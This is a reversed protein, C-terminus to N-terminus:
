NWFVSAWNQNFLPFGDSIKIFLNTLRPFISTDIKLPSIVRYEINSEITYGWLNKISDMLGYISQVTSRLLTPDTGASPDIIFYAKLPFIKAQVFYDVLLPKSAEIWRIRSIGVLSILHAVSSLVNIKSQSSFCALAATSITQMLYLTQLLRQSLPNVWDVSIGNPLKTTVIDKLILPSRLFMNLQTVALYSLAGGALATITAGVRFKVTDKAKLKKKVQEYLFYSTRTLAFIDILVMCTQVKHITAALAPYKQLYSLTVKILSYVMFFREFTTQSPEPDLPRNILTVALFTRNLQRDKIRYEIDTHPARCDPCKPLNNLNVTAKYSHSTGQYIGNTYEQTDTRIYTTNLIVNITQLYGSICTKHFLHNACCAVNILDQRDKGDEPNILCISCAEPSEQPFVLLRQTTNVHEIQPDNEYSLTKSFVIWKIQLNKWLSYGLPLLGILVPFKEIGLHASTSMFIFKAVHAAHGIRQAWSFEESLSDNNLQMDAKLEITLKKLAISGIKAAAVGLFLASLTTLAGSQSSLYTAKFTAPIQNYIRYSYFSLTGVSLLNFFHQIAHINQISTERIWNVTKGGTQVGGKLSMYFAAELLEISGTILPLISSTTM